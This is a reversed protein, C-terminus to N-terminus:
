ICQVSTCFEWSINRFIWHQSVLHSPKHRYDWCKALPHLLILCELGAQVTHSQRLFVFYIFDLAPFICKEPFPAMHGTILCSFSYLGNTTKKAMIAPLGSGFNKFVIVINTVARFKTFFSKDIHRVTPWRMDKQSILVPM